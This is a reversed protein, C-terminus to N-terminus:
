IKILRSATVIKELLLVDFRRVREASFSPSRKVRHYIRNSLAESRKQNKKKENAFTKKKGDSCVLQNVSKM